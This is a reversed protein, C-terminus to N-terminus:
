SLLFSPKSFIEHNHSSTSLTSRSLDKPLPPLATQNLPSNDLKINMLKYTGNRSNYWKKRQTFHTKSMKVEDVLDFVTPFDSRFVRGCIQEIMTESKFTTCLILTNLRVGSYDDCFNEEDFGEGLKSYTGVLVRSDTYLDKKGALFDVNENFMLLCDKMYIAHDVRSTLILIKSDPRNRVIQFILRNRLENSCVDVIFRPFDTGQNNKHTQISIGTKVQYYDFPKTTHKCIQNNGVISKIMREMGDPRKLTASCSIFYRPTIGLLASVNEGTCFNHSEDVIVTGVADLLSQPVNHFRKNMCLVVDIYEGENILPFPEGIVWIKANTFLRYAKTWQKIFSKRHLFVLTLYGLMSSLWIAVVTKGFGPYLGLHTGGYNQLHQLAQSSVEIQDDFLKKDSKFKMPIQLHNLDRNYVKQTLTSAFAMPLDIYDVNAIKNVSYFSIPSKSPGKNYNFGKGFSKFTEVPQMFLFKRIFEIQAETLDSIKLRAAM